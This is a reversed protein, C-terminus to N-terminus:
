GASNAGRMMACVGTRTVETLGLPRMLDIFGDIEDSTQALEFVFGGLRSGRNVAGRPAEGERGGVAVGRGGGGDM